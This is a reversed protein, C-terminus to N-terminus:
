HRIALLSDFRHGDCCDPYLGLIVCMRGQPLPSIGRNLLSDDAVDGGHGLGFLGRRVRPVFAGPLVVGAPAVDLLGQVLDLV